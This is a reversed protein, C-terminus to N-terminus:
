SKIEYHFKVNGDECNTQVLCCNEPDIGVSKSFAAGMAELYLARVKELTDLFAKRVEKIDKLYQSGGEDEEDPLIM